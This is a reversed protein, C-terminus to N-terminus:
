YLERETERERERYMSFLREKNTGFGLSKGNKLVQADNRQSVPSLSRRMSGTRVARRDHVVSREERGTRLRFKNRVALVLWRERQTSHRRRLPQLRGHQAVAVRLARTERADRKSLLASRLSPREKNQFTGFHGRLLRVKQNPSPHLSRKKKQTHM